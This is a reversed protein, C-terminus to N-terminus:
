PCAPCTGSGSGAQSHPRGRPETEPAAGVRDLGFLRMSVGHVSAPCQGDRLRITATATTTAHDGAGCRGVIRRGPVLGARIGDRGPGLVVGLTEGAISSASTTAASVEAPMRMRAASPLVAERGRSGGAEADLEASSSSAASTACALRVTPGSPAVGRTESNSVSIRAQRREQDRYARPASVGAAWDQGGVEELRLVEGVRVLDDRGARTGINKAASRACAAPSGTPRPERQGDAYGAPPSHLLM